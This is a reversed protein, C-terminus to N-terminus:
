RPIKLVQSKRNLFCDGHRLRPEFDVAQWQHFQAALPRPQTTASIALQVSLPASHVIGVGPASPELGKSHRSAHKEKKM